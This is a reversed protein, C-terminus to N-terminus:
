FDYTLSSKSHFDIANLKRETKVWNDFGEEEEERRHLVSVGREAVRKESVGVKRLYM